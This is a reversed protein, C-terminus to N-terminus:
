SPSGALAYGAEEVAARLAAQVATERARKVDGGMVPASGSAMVVVSKGDDRAGLLPGGPFVCLAAVVAAAM